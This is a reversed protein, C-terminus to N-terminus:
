VTNRIELEFDIFAQRWRSVERRADELEKVVRDFDTDVVAALESLNELMIKVSEAANAEGGIYKCMKEHMEDPNSFAFTNLLKYLGKQELNHTALRLSDCLQFRRFRDEWAPFSQLEYIMQQATPKNGFKLASLVSTLHQKLITLTEDILEATDAIAERMEKRENEPFQVATKVGAALEKLIGFVEKFAETTVPM